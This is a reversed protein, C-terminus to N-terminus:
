NIELKKKEPEKNEEFELKLVGDKVEVNIPESVKNGLRIKKRIERGTENEGYIEILGNNFEVTLNDKNFGPVDIFISNDDGRLVDSHFFESEFYETPFKLDFDEFFDRFVDDFKKMPNYNKLRAPVM